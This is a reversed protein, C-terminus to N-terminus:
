ALQDGGANHLSAKSFQDALYGDAQELTADSTDQSSNTRPSNGGTTLDPTPMASGSQSHPRSVSVGMGGGGISSISGHRSPPVSFQSILREFALWKDDPRSPKKRSEFYPRSENVLVAQEAGTLCHCLKQVVYNAFNDKWMVHLLSNGDDGRRTVLRYMELRDEETGYEICHEMVNSAVKQKSFALFQDICLRIVKSRAELGGQRIVAQVVYNGWNDTVLRSAVEQFEQLLFERDEESGKEIMRQIVRCAYQQQSLEFVRGRVADYIFDIRNRPLKSLVKQVVHNGNDNKMIRLIEPELEKALEVQQEVLVYQIAEQVCRCGYLQMSLQVVNDKMRAALLKKQVMTGHQFLQQIVYNGFVDVMLANANVMIEDFVRQRDDSNATPIKEQLFRSGQQDGAFEVIQGFFNKLEWKRNSKSSRRFEELEQCRIGVNPDQIRGGRPVMGAPGTPPFFQQGTQFGYSQYPSQYGSQMQIQQMQQMLQAQLNVGAYANFANDIYPSPAGQRALDLQRQLRNTTLDMEQAASTTDWPGAQRIAFNRPSSTNTSPHHVSNALSDRRLEQLSGSGIPAYEPWVSSMTTTGQTGNVRPGPSNTQIGSRLLQNQVADLAAQSHESGNIFSHSQSRLVTQSPAFASIGGGVSMRSAHRSHSGLGIPFANVDNGNQAPPENDSHRSSPPLGDRPGIDQYTIHNGQPARQFGMLNQQFLGGNGQTNDTYNSYSAQANAQTYPSVLNAGILNTNSKTATHNSFSPSANSSSQIPNSPSTSRSSPRFSQSDTSNWASNGPRAWISSDSAGLGNSRQTSTTGSTNDRSLTDPRSNSWISAGASGQMSSSGLLGSFMNGTNRSSNSAHSQQGRAQPSQSQNGSDM